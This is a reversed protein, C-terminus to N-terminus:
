RGWTPGMNAGHVKSDPYKHMLSDGPIVLLPPGALSYSMMFLPWCQTLSNGLIMCKVQFAFDQRDSFYIQSFVDGIPHDSNLRWHAIFPNLINIYAIITIKYM